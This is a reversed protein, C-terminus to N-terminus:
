RLWRFLRWRVMNIIIKLGDLVTTGKYNDHYITKIPIEKIKLGALCANAIMESEMSYGTSEWRIKRYNKSSFARFGSQTDRIQINYLLKTMYQIFLNGLMLIFPMDGGMKRSGIILDAHNLAEILHPIVKPDHQDDGDMVIITKAGKKVAYDCGTKLAAGKGMNVIHQLVYSAGTASAVDYTNDSSGDDIIIINDAFKKTRDIVTSITKSENYAPIVVFLDNNQSM